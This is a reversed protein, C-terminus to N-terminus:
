SQGALASCRGPDAKVRRCVLLAALSRGITERMREEMTNANRPQRGSRTLSNRATSVRGTPWNWCRWTATPPAWGASEILDRLGTRAVLTAMDADDGPIDPLEGTLHERHRLALKAMCESRAIAYLWSRLRAPERLHGIKNRGYRLHGPRLRGGCRPRAADRRQLRPPRDGNRDYIAAFAARDGGAAAVAPPGAGLVITTAAAIRNAIANM